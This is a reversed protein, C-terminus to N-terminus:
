LCSGLVAELFKLAHKHSIDRWILHCRDDDFWYLTLPTEHNRRRAEQLGELMHALAIADQKNGVLDLCTETTGSSHERNLM